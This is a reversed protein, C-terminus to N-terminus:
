PRRSLVVDGSTTAVRLQVADPRSPLLLARHRRQWDGDFRSRIRGSVTQVQGSVPVDPLALTVNGSVSTVTIAEGPGLAAFSAQLDGSTTTASLEGTLRVLRADGSTSELLTRACGARLLVDGSTTHVDLLALPPGLITVDGSVSEVVLRAAGGRVTLDGSHSAIRVEGALPASGDLSVEGSTTEVELQCSPPLTVSLTGGPPSWGVSFSPVRAPISVRLREPSDDFVPRHRELWRRNRATSSVGPALRLEVAIEDSEAVTVAVDLSRVQIEVLKGARAPFTHRGPAESLPRPRDCSWGAAALALVALLSRRSM